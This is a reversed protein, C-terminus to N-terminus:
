VVSKRDEGDEVQSALATAVLRRNDPTIFKDFAGKAALQELNAYVFVVDEIPALTEEKEGRSTLMLTAIILGAVVCLASAWLLIKKM